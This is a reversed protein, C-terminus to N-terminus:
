RGVRLFDAFAEKAAGRDLGILSRVFLGLGQSEEKAKAITEADGIGNEALMSELADLDTATLPKNM